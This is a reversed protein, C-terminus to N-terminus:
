GRLAIATALMAAWWWPMCDLLPAQRGFGRRGAGNLRLTPMLLLGALAAVLWPAQILVATLLIATQGSWIMRIGGHDGAALSTIGWQLLIFAALALLALRNVPEGLSEGGYALSAGLMWPLGVGLVSLLFAPVARRQAVMWSLLGFALAMASLVLASTGLLLSLVLALVSAAGVDYWGPRPSGDMARGALQAGLRAAPAGPVTYPLFRRGIGGSAAGPGVLGLRFFAGWALEALMIAALIRLLSAGSMLPAGAAIAGALVSWAPSLRWPHHRLSLHIDTLPGLAALARGTPLGYRGSEAQNDV